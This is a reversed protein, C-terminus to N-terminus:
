TVPLAGWKFYKSFLQNADKRTVIEAVSRNLQRFLQM